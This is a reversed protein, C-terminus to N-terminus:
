CEWGRTPLHWMSNCSPQFHSMYSAILHWFWAGCLDILFISTQSKESAAASTELVNECLLFEITGTFLSSVLPLCFPPFVFMSTWSPLTSTTPSAFDIPGPHFTSPFPFLGFDHRGWRVLVLIGGQGEFNQWCPRLIYLQHASTSLDHCYLLIARFIRNFTFCVVCCNQMNQFAAEMEGMNWSFFCLLTKTESITSLCVRLLPIWVLATAGTLAKWFPKAVKFPFFPTGFNWFSGRSRDEM